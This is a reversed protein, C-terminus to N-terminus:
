YKSFEVRFSMNNGLINWPAMSSKKYYSLGERRVSLHIKKYDEKCWGIITELTIIFDDNVIIGYESINIREWGRKKKSTFFIDKPNIITDPMENKVNYINIRYHISDCYTNRIHFYFNRLYITDKNNFLTGIEAGNIADSYTWAFRGRRRSGIFYTKDNDPLIVVEPLTYVKKKMVINLINKDNNILDGIKFDVNKFGVSSFQLLESGDIGSIDVKYKGDMTSITGRNYGIVGINVYPLPNQSEDVVQGSIIQCEATIQGFILILFLLLENKM